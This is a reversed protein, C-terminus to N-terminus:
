SAETLIPAARRLFWRDFWDLFAPMEVPDREILRERISQMVGLQDQLRKGDSAHERWFEGNERRLEQVVQLACLVILYHDVLDGKGEASDKLVRKLLSGLSDYKQGFLRYIAERERGEQLASRVSRELSGFALFIGACRDFFTQEQALPTYRSLLAAGAGLLAVEPSRVELFAARQAATLLSWYRLIEAPSLDFL